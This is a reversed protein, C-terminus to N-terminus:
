SNLRVRFSNSSADVNVAVPGVTAVAALLDAENGKKIRVVGSIDTCTTPTPQNSECQGQQM